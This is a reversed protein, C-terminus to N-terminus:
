ENRLAAMPDLRAARRAPIYSAVLAILALLTSAAILSVADNPQMGFLLTAAAKGAWLALVIGATLGVGLLVVAERLVLRIVNPGDAGLAIRVGIENRRQAVMYAIVGYLGLTALLGALFGFGGSLTAMLRERLISDEIQSSLPRFEIGMAPNVASKAASTFQRPPGVLRAVFCANPQPNDAQAMPFFAIPLFDERLELYKTNRVLGVIQFVPEPKGVEAAVHFTHGVPNAGGFFTRAFKQNVIAVKPSSPSDHENFDRGAIVQTGMTRFYGPGAQNFYAPKGSASAATADPAVLNNWTDGSVPTIGTQALSVVGPLGSLTDSLERYVALRREKPYPMKSFDVNVTMIGQAQFGPDIMLLNDLSRIFLLAGFLLVLSLAVQTSVLARRFSFRERGATVSRVGTRMASVPSLYTARIAPLLGFLVCTLAALGATFGLMRWDLALDVFLPNDATSIFVVLANSLVVALGAGLLAGAIALLLSEALLQRVLRGRSAGIALRMAIEPERVAARALLLNALNACAILLVLATIAM